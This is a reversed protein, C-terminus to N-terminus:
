KYRGLYSGPMPVGRLPGLNHMSQQINPLQVREPGIPTITTGPPLQMPPRLDITNRDLAAIEEPTLQVPTMHPYARGLVPAPAQPEPSGKAPMTGAASRAAGGGSLKMSVPKDRTQGKELSDLYRREADTPPIGMENLRRMIGAYRQRNAATAKTAERSDDTSKDLPKILTKALFAAAQDVDQDGM